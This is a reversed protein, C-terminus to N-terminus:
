DVAPPKSLGIFERFVRNGLLWGRRSLRLNEQDDDAWELLGAQILRTIQESFVEWLGIAFQQEFKAASVGHELLRLGVM